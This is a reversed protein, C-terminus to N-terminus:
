ARELLRDDARRRALRAALWLLVGLIVLPGVAVLVLLVAAAEWALVEGARDLARDIRSPAPAVESREETTLSLSVTALEGERTTQQRGALLERRERRDSALRASLRARTELPLDPNKLQREIRAIEATLVAIRDTMADVQQQLDEVNVQQSLITGLQSFGVIAQQVRERPVRVVIDAASTGQEPVNTQLSVVFGGLQQTLRLARQTADSLDDANEVRLRLSAEYRQLRGLSPAPTAGPAAKGAARSLTTASDATPPPASEQAFPQTLTARPGAATLSDDHGSRAIGIAGAAAIAVLAAAPVIVLLRSPRVRLSTLAALRSPREEVELGRIRQRLEGPATPRSLRIQELLESSSM